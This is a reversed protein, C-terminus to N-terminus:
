NHIQIPIPQVICLSFHVKLVALMCYLCHFWEVGVREFSSLETYLSGRMVVGSISVGRYVTFGENCGGSM